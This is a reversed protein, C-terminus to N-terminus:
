PFVEQSSGSARPLAELSRSVNETAPAVLRKEFVDDRLDLGAKRNIQGLYALAFRAEETARAVEQQSPQAPTRPQLLFATGGVTLALAAAISAIRAARSPQWARRIPVIDAPRAERAERPGAARIRELVEPPCDLEPLARLERQVAEALALEGACAACAAMHTRVREAEERPLDGDLYPELIECVEDCFTEGTNRM